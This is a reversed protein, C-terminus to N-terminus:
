FSDIYKKFEEISKFYFEGKPTSGNVGGDQLLQFRYGRYESEHAEKRSSTASENILRNDASSYRGSTQRDVWAIVLRRTSEATHATSVAIDVFAQILQGFAIFIIGLLIAGLLFVINFFMSGSNAPLIAFFLLFAVVVIFVGVIRLLISIFKLGSYKM